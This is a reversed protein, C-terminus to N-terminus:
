LLLRLGVIGFYFAYGFFTLACAALIWRFRAESLFGKAFVVAAAVVGYWVLDSSVHGLYFLSFGKRGAQMSSVLLELGVTFWWLSWYPNSVTAAVAGLFPGLGRERNDARNLKFGRLGRLLKIGLFILAASGLVGATGAVVENSAFKVVGAVLLLTLVLEVLGHGAVALPGAWFGRKGAEAVVVVFLPGPVVAGTLGLVFSTFLIGADSTM